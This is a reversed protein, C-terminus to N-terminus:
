PEHTATSCATRGAAQALAGAPAGAQAQEAGSGPHGAPHAWAARRSGLRRHRLSRWAARPVARTPRRTGHAPRRGGRSSPPPAHAPVERSPPRRSSERATPPVADSPPPPPVPCRRDPDGHLATSADDHQLHRLHPGALRSSVLGRRLPAAGAETAPRSRRAVKVPSTSKMLALAGPTFAYRESRPARCAPPRQNSGLRAWGGQGASAPVPSDGRRRPHRHRRGELRPDRNGAASRTQAAPRRCSSPCADTPRHGTPASKPATSDLLRLLLRPDAPWAAVAV